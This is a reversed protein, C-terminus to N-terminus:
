LKGVASETDSHWKTITTSTEKSRENILNEQRNFLKEERKILSNFSKQEEERGKNAQTLIEKFSAREEAVLAAHQKDYEARDRYLTQVEFFLICFFIIIWVAKAWPQDPPWITM